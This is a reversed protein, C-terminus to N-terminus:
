DTAAEAMSWVILHDPRSAYCLLAGKGNYVTARLDDIM